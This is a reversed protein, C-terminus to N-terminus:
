QELYLSFAEIFNKSFNSESFQRVIKNMTEAKEPSWERMATEIKRASDQLNEYRYKAPVFEKMGGSNHVVPICGAAMAEAISIGFHEGIRTHFYVKARRLISELEEKPADAVVKVRETLGLSAINQIISDYVKLDHLLGILIFKINSKTLKAIYPIKELGKDASFRSVTVVLDERPNNAFGGLRENFLTSPVPPYIVKVNVNVFKKIINATFKSNAIILKDDYNQLKKAYVFYPLGLVFRIQRCKLYPFNTRYDYDNLFPFHIYSIDTWPFICNSYTDILIDCKSKLTFSNTITPFLDFSDGPRTFSSKITIKVSSAIEEGLMKKIQAQQLKKGVFLEVDYGNRALTNTVVLAV